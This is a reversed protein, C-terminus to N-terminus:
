QVARHFAPVDRIAHDSPLVLLVGNPDTGRVQLAAVAVAPATNRGVPELVQLATQVGLEALQEGVLFRHEQNSVVIPAACDALGELRTLTDQLMTRSSVLPLFQKPLLRRSM